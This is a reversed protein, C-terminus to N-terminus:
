SMDERQDIQSLATSDPSLRKPWGVRFTAGRSRGPDSEVAISGGVVEVTRKVLALGVGSGEPKGPDDDGIRKFPAFIAEHWEAPIGPGDDAVAIALMGADDAATVRILGVMRDHHKIANEILNRLVIDLPQALTVLTPWEGEVTIAIGDSRAVSQVIEGVLVRTDVTEAVETKRGIRSYELLGALMQGMRRSQRTVRELSKGAADGDGSALAQGADEAAYRMGRLPARLDHSIISAFAELDRNARSLEGNAKELLKKQTAVEQEAMRRRRMQAELQEELGTRSIVRAILLLYQRSDALWHVSINYRPADLNLPDLQVNPVVVMRPGKGFRLESIREGFGMLAPMGSTVPEGLPVINAVLGLRRTAVTGADLWAMGILGEAALFLGADVLERESPQTM